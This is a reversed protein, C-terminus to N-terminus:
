SIIKNRLATVKVLIPDIFKPADDETSIKAFEDKITNLDTIISKLDKEKEYEKLLNTLNVIHLKQEYVKKFLVSNETTKPNSKLISLTVFQSEVWSGVLIQTAVTLRENTRLYADTAAYVENVVKIISDKNEVSNETHNKAIKDFSDVMDLQKALDRATNFYAKLDDVNGSAALYILDVTYVGYNLGKKATTVYKAANEKKNILNADFTSNTKTVTAFMDAPPYPINAITTQFKFEALQDVKTTDKSITSDISVTEEVTKEHNGGCSILYVPFTLAALYILKTM